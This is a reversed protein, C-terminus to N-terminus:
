VCVRACVSSPALFSMFRVYGYVVPTADQIIFVSPLSLSLSLAWSLSLTLSLSLTHLHTLPAPPPPTFVNYSVKMNENGNQDWRETQTEKRRPKRTVRKATKLLKVEKKLHQRVERRGEEWTHQLWFLFESRRTINKKEGKLFERGAM